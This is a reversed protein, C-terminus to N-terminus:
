KKPPLVGMARLMTGLFDSILRMTEEDSGPSGPESGPDDTSFWDFIVVEDDLEKLVIDNFNPAKVSKNSKGAKGATDSKGVKDAADVKDAANASNAANTAMPRSNLKAAIIGAMEAALAPRKEIRM